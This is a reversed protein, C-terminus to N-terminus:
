SLPLLPMMVHLLPLPQYAWMLYISDTWEGGPREGCQGGYVLPKEIGVCCEAQSHSGHITCLSCAPRNWKIADGCNEASHLRACHQRCYCHGAGLDLCPNVYWVQYAEQCVGNILLKLPFRFRWDLDHSITCTMYSHFQLAVEATQLHCLLSHLRLKILIEWSTDSLWRWWPYWHCVAM